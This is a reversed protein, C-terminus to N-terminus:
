VACVVTGLLICELYVVLGSIFSELFREIYLWVGSENHVDVIANPSWQLYFELAEPLVTLLCLGVGLIIGLMNRWNRGERRMLSFNSLAVMGFIVLAFPLVLSSFVRGSSLLSNVTTDIGRYSYLTILQRVLLFALFVILGLDLVNKYRYLSKKRDERYRGIFFCLLVALYVCAAIPIAICGTSMGFYSEFTMVRPPSVYLQFYSQSEGSRSVSVHAKGTKLARFTLLLAGDGVRKDTLEVVDGGSEFEVAIDDADAPIDGSYRSQDLRVTYTGGLAIVVAACAAALILGIIVITKRSM